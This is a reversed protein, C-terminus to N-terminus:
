SLALKCYITVEHFETFWFPEILKFVKAESLKSSLWSSMKPKTAGDHPMNNHPKEVAGDGEYGFKDLVDLLQQITFAIKHQDNATEAVKLAVVLQHTVLHLAYRAPQSNWPPETSELVNEGYVCDVPRLDELRHASIAGVEGFCTALLLRIDPNDEHVCRALM